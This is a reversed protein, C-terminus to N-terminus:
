WLLILFFNMIRIDSETGRIDADVAEAILLQWKMVERIEMEKSIDKNITQTRRYILLKKIKPKM